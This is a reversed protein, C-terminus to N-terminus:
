ANFPDNIPLCKLPLRRLSPNFKEGNSLVVLDNTGGVYRWLLAKEPHKVFLDKTRWESVDPFNFFVSQWRSDPRKRIVLQHSEGVVPEMTAGSEPHWEFYEWDEENTPTLSSVNLVETTNPGREVQKPHFCRGM